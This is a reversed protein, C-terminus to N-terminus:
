RLTLEQFFVSVPKFEFLYFKILFCILIFAKVSVYRHIIYIKTFLELILYIKLFTKKKKSFIDERVLASM